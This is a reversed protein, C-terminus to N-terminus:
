GSTSFASESPVISISLGFIDRVMECLMPFRHGNRKWWGLVDYKYNPDHLTHTDERGLTLYIDFDTKHTTNVNIDVLYGSLVNPTGWTSTSTPTPTTPTSAVLGSTHQSSSTGVDHKDQYIKIMQNVEEKLETLMVEGRAEGYFKGFVYKALNFKNRPDFVSAIYCLRNLKPNNGHQEDWYKGVKELMRAAMNSIDEDDSAEMNRIHTFIKLIEVLFLHATVYKTGSAVLTFNHFAGLFPLLKRVNVWDQEQPPGIIEGEFLKARLESVYARDDELQKFAAEFPEASELMLFTANWRTPVDLSVCKKLQIGKYAICQNFWENREPSNRVYRVAERVQRVSMGVESLGQSVVLNTIHAVCRMHLYKGHMMSTGWDIMTKKLTEIAADNASANDVTIASIKTLQWEELCTAVIKAIDAGKHSFIRRFNIIKKYLKWDVGVFHATICIYNFNQVSTWCDTTISVRGVCKSKFFMKLSEKGDLFLRLCDARITKRSPMKFLPSAEKMVGNFGEKEVFSFPLEDLVIMQAIKLRLKIPDYKWTITELGGGPQFNLRMQGDLVEKRKQCNITHRNM